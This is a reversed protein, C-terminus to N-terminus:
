GAKVTGDLACIYLLDIGRKALVAPDLNKAVFDDRETPRPM